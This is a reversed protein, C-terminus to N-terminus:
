IKDLEKILKELNEEKELLEQFSETYTIDEQFYGTDKDFYSNQTVIYGDGGEIINAIETSTEELLLYVAEILLHKNKM